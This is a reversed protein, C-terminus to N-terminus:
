TKRRPTTGEATFRKKELFSNLQFVVLMSLHQYTELESDHAFWLIEQYIVCNGWIQSEGLGLHFISWIKPRMACM